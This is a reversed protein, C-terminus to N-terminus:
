YADYMSIYSIAVAAANSSNLTNNNHASALLLDFRAAVVILNSHDLPLISAHM